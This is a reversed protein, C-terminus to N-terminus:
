GIGEGLAAGNARHGILHREEYLYLIEERREGRALGSDHKEVVQVPGVGGGEVEKAEERAGDSRQRKEEENGVAAVFQRALMGKVGEEGLQRPIGPGFPDSETPEVVVRDM